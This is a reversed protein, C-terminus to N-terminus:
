ERVKVDEAEYDGAAIGARVTAIEAILATLPNQVTAAWGAAALAWSGWATGGWTQLVGAFTNWDTLLDDLDSLLDEHLVNKNANYQALAVHGTATPRPLVITEAPIDRAEPLSRLGPLFIANSSHHQAIGEPLGGEGTRWWRRPNFDGFLLLGTEGVQIDWYAGPFIVPVNAIVPRTAGTSSGDRMTLTPQVNATQNARSWANVVVGVDV